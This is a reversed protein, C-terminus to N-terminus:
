YGCLGGPSESARLEQTVIDVTQVRLLTTDALNTRPPFLLVVQGNERIM